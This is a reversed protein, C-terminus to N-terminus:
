IAGAAVNSTQAHSRLLIIEAAVAIAITAPEKGVVGALGIPCRMTNLKAASIDRDTLRREFQRRKTVSGILGFYAYDARRLIRESLALDLAHSHTMVIFWCGVAAHDIECEPLDTTICAVNAGVEKPFQEGRSDVWTISCDLTSLTEVVARGVHGAGFLMVQFGPRRPPTQSLDAILDFSLHVVGGCCQGLAAGLPFRRVARADGSELMSRAIEIAKFELHGGGITGQTATASVTMTTDVGRPVSGKADVVTIRVVPPPLARTELRQLVNSGM